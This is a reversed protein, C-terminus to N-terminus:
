MHLGLGSGGEGDGIPSVTYPIFTLKMSWRSMAKEAPATSRSRKRMAADAGAPLSKTQLPDEAVGLLWSHVEVAILMGVM